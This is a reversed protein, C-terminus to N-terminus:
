EDGDDEVPAAADSPWGLRLTLGEAPAFPARWTPLTLRLSGLDTTEVTLSHGAGLYSWASVHGEVMNEATEGDGLLAIREPRLSLLVTDGTAGTALRQTLTTAGVSVRATAGIREAIRGSIMNSKGLFGAVFRTRPRDYLADPAGIQILKGHNLIAVTDSLSMAEEQDHTVNIFTRGIRRHLTKLEDQLEARLKKDLASLPEDLLLLNPEFVLARALAVRQQQGGSLQSPRREAFQSLQVLDLTARIKTDREAREMGRVRLPFALNEAVTMHPFLAYGQFVMGFDRKEPPLPTIERGDLLIAGASPAVFGAIAMLITTKGSGSPGLLTLFQGQAVDLSVDNVATFSGYRKTLGVLSLAHAQSM